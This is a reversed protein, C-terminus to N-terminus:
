VMIIASPKISPGSIPPASVAIQSQGATNQNRIGIAMAASTSNRPMGTDGGRAAPSRMSMRPPMASTRPSTVNSIASLRM